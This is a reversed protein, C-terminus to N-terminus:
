AGVEKMRVRGSIGVESADTTGAVVVSVGGGASVVGGRDVAIAGVAGARRGSIAASIFSYSLQSVGGVLVPSTWAVPSTGCGPSSGPM